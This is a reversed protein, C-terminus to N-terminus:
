LDLGARVATGVSRAIDIQTRLRNANARAARVLAEAMNHATYVDACAILAEDEKEQVTVKRGADLARQGIAMRSRAITIEYASKADAYTMEAIELQEHAEDYERSLQVLKQEVQAPTIVNSNM